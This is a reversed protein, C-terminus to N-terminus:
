RSNGCCLVRRKIGSAETEGPALVSNAEKMGGLDGVGGMADEGGGVDSHGM